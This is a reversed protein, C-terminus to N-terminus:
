RKIVRELNLFKDIGDDCIKGKYISLNIKM